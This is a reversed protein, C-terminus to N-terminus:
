ILKKEGSMLKTVMDNLESYDRIGLSYVLLDSITNKNPLVIVMEDYKSPWSGKLVDYQSELKDMNDIMENFVSSFSQYTSAVSSSYVSTMLSSPNLKSIKNQTM